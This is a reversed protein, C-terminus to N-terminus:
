AYVGQFVANRGARKASYLAQDAHSVLLESNMASGVHCAVGSSITVMQRTPHPIKEDVLKRRICEGVRHAGDLTTDPLLIAFEDGGYRAVVDDPRSVASALLAGLRRLAEDGARHGALDNLGKFHDLDILLLSVPHGTRHARRTARELADDFHRRNSVGTLADIESKRKLEQITQWFSVEDMAIAALEQLPELDFSAPDREEDGLVCLSGIVLDSGAILPVGAYFRHTILDLIPNGELRPDTHVNGIVVPEGSAVVYNCIACERPMVKPIADRTTSKLWQFGADIFAIYALEAGYIRKALKAIRDFREDQETDMLRCAVLADLREVENQPFFASDLLTYGIQFIQLIRM